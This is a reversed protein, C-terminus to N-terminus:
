QTANPVNTASSEYSPRSKSKIFRINAQKGAVAGISGRPQQSDSIMKDNFSYRSNNNSNNNKTHSSM